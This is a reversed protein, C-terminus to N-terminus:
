SNLGTPKNNIQQSCVVLHNFKVGRFINRNSDFDNKSKAPEIISSGMIDPINFCFFNTFGQATIAMVVATKNIDAFVAAFIDKLTKATIGTNAAAAALAM